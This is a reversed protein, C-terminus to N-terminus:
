AGRYVLGNCQISRWGVAARRLCSRRSGGRRHQHRDARAGHRFQARDAHQRIGSTGAPQVGPSAAGRPSQPRAILEYSGPPINRLTFTGNGSVGTGFSANLVPDRTVVSVSGGAAPEGSSTMVTGSVTFVRTEILRIDANVESGGVLRLRLAESMSPVGPAYSPALGIAEGEIAPGGMNNGAAAMLLYEGPHLDFMRFEGLDNTSATSTVTPEAGGRLVIARVQVRAAPQGSADTVRGTILASRGLAVDINELKQGDALEVPKGRPTTHGGLSVAGYSAPQYGARHQGPMASITYTGATLRTFAYRGEDDTLVARSTRPGGLMVMSRRFPAGTDSATVRGQISGTGSQEALRADRPPPQPLGGIQGVVSQAGALLCMLMLSRM